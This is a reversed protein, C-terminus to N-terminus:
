RVDEGMDRSIMAQSGRTRKSPREQVDDEEDTDEGTDAAPSSHERKWKAIIEDCNDLNEELEWTSLKKAYGKWKVLYNKAGRRDDREELIAEVEYENGPEQEDDKKIIEEVKRQDDTDKSVDIVAPM